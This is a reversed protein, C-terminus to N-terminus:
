TCKYVCLFLFSVMARHGMGRASADGIALVSPIVHELAYRALMAGKRADTWTEEFPIPAEFVTVKVHM